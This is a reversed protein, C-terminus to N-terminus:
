MLCIKTLSLICSVQLAQGEEVDTLSQNETNEKLCINVPGILSKPFCNPEYLLATYERAQFYKNNMLADHLATM